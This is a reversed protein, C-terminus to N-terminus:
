YDSYLRNKCKISCQIICELLRSETQGKVLYDHAGEKIAYTGITEDKLGTLIIIPILSNQNRISLFTNIGDSDPLGLDLLIVNFLQEKLVSLAENLTGVNNLEYSFNAFEELQEEIMYVDGLNDEILLIKINEGMVVARLFYM